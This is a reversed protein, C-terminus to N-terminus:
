RSSYLRAVVTGVVEPRVHGHDRPQGADCYRYPPAASHPYICIRGCLYAYAHAYAHFHMYADAYTIHIHMHIHPSGASIVPWRPGLRRTPRPQGFRPCGPARDPASLPRRLARQGLAVKNQLDYKNGVCSGCSPAAASRAAPRGRQAPHSGAGTRQRVRRVRGAPPHAAPSSTLVCTLEHTCLPKCTQQPRSMYELVCPSCTSLVPRRAAIHSWLGGM